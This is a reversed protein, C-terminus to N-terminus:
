GEALIDQEAAMQEGNGEDGDCNALAWWTLDALILQACQTNSLRVLRIIQRVEQITM